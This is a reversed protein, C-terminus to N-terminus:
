AALDNTITSDDNVLKISDKKKKVYPLETLLACPFNPWFLSICVIKSWTLATDLLSFSSINSNLSGGTTFTFQYHFMCYFHSNLHKRKTRNKIDTM